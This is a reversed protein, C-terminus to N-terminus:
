DGDKESHRENSNNKLLENYNSRDMELQRKSAAHIEKLCNNLIYEIVFYPLKSNNILDSISFLFDEAELTIPKKIKETM